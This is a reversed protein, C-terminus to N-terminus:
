ITDGIQYLLTWRFCLELMWRSLPYERNGTHSLYGGGKARAARSIWVLWCHISTMILSTVVSGVVDLWAGVGLMM